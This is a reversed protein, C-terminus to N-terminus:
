RSRIAAIARELNELDLMGTGVSKVRVFPTGAPVGKSEAVAATELPLRDPDLREFETRRPIGAKARLRELIALSRADAGVGTLGLLEIYADPWTLDRPHDACRELATTVGAAIRASREPTIWGAMRDIAHLGAAGSRTRAMRKREGPGFPRVCAQLVIVARRQVLAEDELAALLLEVTDEGHWSDLAQGIESVFLERWQPGPLEPWNAALGRMGHAAVIRAVALQFARQEDPADLAPVSRTATARDMDRLAAIAQVARRFDGSRLRKPIDRM